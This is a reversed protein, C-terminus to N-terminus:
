MYLTNNEMYMPLSTHEILCDIFINELLSLMEFEHKLKPQFKIVIFTKGFNFNSASNEFYKDKKFCKIKFITNLWNRM